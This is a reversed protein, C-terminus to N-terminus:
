YSKSKKEKKRRLSKLYQKRDDDGGKGRTKQIRRSHVSKVSMPADEEPPDYPM